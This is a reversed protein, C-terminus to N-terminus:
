HLRNNEIYNIKEGSCSFMSVAFLLDTAKVENIFDIANINFYRIDCVYIHEFSNVLFPVLANGFSDKFIVLTRSNKNELNDIQAIEEDKGLFTSYTNISQANEFFLVSKQPNTFSTSYYTTQYESKPEYYTFTDPYKKLLENQCFGYLTGTFGEKVKTEYNKNNLESFDVGAVKAFEQAAYYAGLPQWHHDTRSYIYEDTHQALASYADVNLVGSLNKSINDIHSKTDAIQDKYNQPTYYACATPCCMNYVNINAGLQEKYKNLYEAYKLGYEMGGGYIEMARVNEDDGVVMIGSNMTVEAPDPLSFESSSEINSETNSSEISSESSNEPQSIIQSSNDQKLSSTEQKIPAVIEVKDPSFGFLSCFKNGAQKFFEKHPVTDTYYKDMQASYSKDFWSSISFTPKETYNRNETKIFGQERPLVLLCLCVAFGFIGLGIVNAIAFKKEASLRSKKIKEKPKSKETQDSQKSKKPLESSGWIDDFNDENEKTNDNDSQENPKRVHKGIYIPPSPEQYEQPNQSIEFNNLNNLNNNYQVYEPTEPKINEANEIPNLREFIYEEEFTPTQETDGDFAQEQMEQQTPNGIIITTERINSQNKEYSVWKGHKKIMSGGLADVMLADAMDEPTIDDWTGKPRVIKPLEPKPTPEQPAPEKLVRIKTVELSKSNNKSKSKRPDDIVRFGKVEMSKQKNNM